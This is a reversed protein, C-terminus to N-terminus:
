RGRSRLSCFLESLCVTLSLLSTQTLAALEPYGSNVTRGSKGRIIPTPIATAEAKTMSYILKEGRGHTVHPRTPTVAMPPSSLSPLSTM